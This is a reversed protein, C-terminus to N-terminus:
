RRSDWALAGGVEHLLSLDGENLVVYAGAKSFPDPLDRAGLGVVLFAGDPSYGIARGPSDLTAMRIQIVVVFGVTPAKYEVCLSISWVPLRVMTKTPVDWVRVTKDDGM